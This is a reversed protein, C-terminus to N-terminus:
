PPLQWPGSEEGFLEAQCYVIGVRADAELAAVARELYTPAIRDDADLPLIYQGSTAAIGTNRAGAAGQNATHMVQAQPYDYAALKRNTAEDTSGDNIVIIEFDRYTQALVSAVAEDVFQGQNFCPIIVSVKPM